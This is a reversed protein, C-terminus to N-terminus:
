TETKSIDAATLYPELLSILAPPLRKPKEDLGTCVHFTSGELLIRKSPNLIRYAFNLRVGELATGWVEITLLDDYRAPEL